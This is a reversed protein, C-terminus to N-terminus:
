SIIDFSSIVRLPVVRLVFPGLILGAILYGTVNPLRIQKVLRGCLLGGLLLISLYLLTNLKPM